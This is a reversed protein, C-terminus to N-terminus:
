LLPVQVRQERRKSYVNFIFGNRRRDYGPTVVRRQCGREMWEAEVNPYFTTWTEDDFAVM